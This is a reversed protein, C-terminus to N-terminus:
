GIQKVVKRAEALDREAYIESTVASSHGLTVRAAEIGGVKRAMTGFTHRLRNPSWCHQRRWKAAALRLRCKEAERDQEPLKRIASGIRRIEKPMEFALECARTIARRYAAPTYPRRKDLHPSFVFDESSGTLWPRLVDQGRPGICVVRARGHHETKHSRPRYEWIDDSIELEDMRLSLVEAPRMGTALQLQVAAKAATPLHPLTKEVIDVDVPPVPPREQATSRGARLPEITELAALVSPAVYEYSVGWRFIRVIRRVSRNVTYRCCGTAVIADRVTRLKQPGFDRCQSQRFLEVLPKAAMRVCHVESTPRGNKVYYGLAHEIFLVVLQGVTMEPFLASARESRLPEILEHYRAKSERSGYPGLYHTVGDIVTRAQGTAKHELYGPIRNQRPM